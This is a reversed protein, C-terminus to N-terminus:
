IGGYAKESRKEDMRRFSVPGGNNRKKIQILTFVPEGIECPNSLIPCAAGGFQQCAVDASPM